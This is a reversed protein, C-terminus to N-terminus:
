RAVAGEWPNLRDCSRRCVARAEASRVLRHRRVIAINGQRIGIMLKTGATPTVALLRHRPKVVFRAPPGEPRFRSVGLPTVRAKM